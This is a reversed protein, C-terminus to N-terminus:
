SFCLLVVGSPLRPGGSVALLRLRRRRLRGPVQRMCRASVCSSELGGGRRWVGFALCRLSSAPVWFGSGGNGGRAAPFAVHGERSRGRWTYCYCCFLLVSLAVPCLGYPSKYAAHQMRSAVQQQAWSPAARGGLGTPSSACPPPVSVLRWFCSVICKSHLGALRWCAALPM